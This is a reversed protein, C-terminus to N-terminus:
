SFVLNVQFNWLCTEVNIQNIGLAGSSEYTTTYLQSVMKTIYLVEVGSVGKQALKRIRLVWENM